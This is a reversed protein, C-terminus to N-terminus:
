KRKQTLLFEIEDLRMFSERIAITLLAEVIANRSPVKDVDSLRVQLRHLEELEPPRVRPALRTLNNARM